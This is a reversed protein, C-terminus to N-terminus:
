IFLKNEIKKCYMNKFNMSSIITKVFKLKNTLNVKSFSQFWRLISTMNKGVFSYIIDKKQNNIKWHM